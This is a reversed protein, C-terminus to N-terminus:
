RHRKRGSRFALIMIIWSALMITLWLIVNATDGTVPVSRNGSKESEGATNVGNITSNITNLGINANSNDATGISIIDNGGSSGSSSSSDSSSSGSSSNGSSGSGSGSNGTNDTLGGSDKANGSEITFAANASGDDFEAILTHTGAKLGLLYDPSLRIIVSGAAKTYNNEAVNNGDIKIGMFHSFTTQDDVSRKFVFDLTDKSGKYWKQNNGATVSYSTEKPDEKPDEKKEKKNVTRTETMGCEKCTRADEGNETYTPEKVRKWEGWDHGLAPIVAEGKKIDIKTKEPDKADLFDWGCGACHYYPKSGPKTCTAAKGEVTEPDHVHGKKAVERTEVHESNRKCERVVLGTQTETATRTTIWKGWDHGLAPITETKGSITKACGTCIEYIQREGPEDCTAEKSIESIEKITHQHNEHKNIVVVGDVKGDGNRVTKSITSTYGEIKDETVSYSDIPTDNDLTFAFLWDGDANKTVNNTSVVSGEKLLNVSVSEPRKANDIDEDAWIVIGELLRGSSILTNIVEFGQEAGSTNLGSIYTSYGKIDEKGEEDKQKLTYTIKTVKNKEEDYDYLQLDGLDYNWNDDANVTLIKVMVGNAYLELKVYHEPRTGENNDRDNWIISGSVHVTKEPKHTLYITTGKINYEYGEPPTLTVGKVKYEINTRWNNDSARLIVDGKEEPETGEKTFTVSLWTPRTGDANDGDNWVARISSSDSTEWVATFTVDDTVTFADDPYYCKDASKWYQFYNGNQDPDDYICEPITIPTNKLVTYKKPTTDDEGSKVTVTRYEIGDFFNTVWVQRAVKTNEGDMNVLGIFKGIRDTLLGGDGFLVPLVKDAIDLPTDKPENTGNTGAVMYYDFAAKKADKPLDDYGNNAYFDKLNKIKTNADDHFSGFVDKVGGEIGANNNLGYIIKGRCEKLQPYRTLGKTYDGDETYLYPEGTSPNIEQSLARIHKRLRNRAEDEDLDIGQSDIDIIVTETPNEKLFEKIWDFVKALTLPDDNHDKAYFTGMFKDKGHMIWLDKGNDSRSMNDAHYTNVRFDFKRIGDQLQEDVYRRQCKAYRDTIATYVDDSFYSILGGLPNSVTILGKLIWAAYSTSTNGHINATGSDHTGPLNVENLYREGSLGSMWDSGKLKQWNREMQSSKPIFPNPDEENKGAKKFAAEVDKLYVEHKDNSFFILSPEIGENNIIYGETFATDLGDETTVGIRAYVASDGKGAFLPGNVTLKKDETLYIDSGGLNDSIEANGSIYVNYVDKTHSDVFIGSGSLGSMNWTIRGGKVTLKADGNDIYIGGGYDACSNDQLSCNDLTVSCDRIRIAGGSVNASNEKLTCDKLEIDGDTFIAGGDKGARNLGIATGTIGIKGEKVYIGGGDGKVSNASISGGIITMDNTTYIGGGDAEGTNGIINCDTLTASNRNNIGVGGKKSSTNASIEVGTFEITGGDNYVGGGDESINGSIKGNEMVVRGAYIVMGGGNNEARNGSMETDKVTLTKNGAEVRMGGGDETESRNGNVRSNKIIADSGLHVILGGGDNKSTNGSIVANEIEFTGSDACYIGGGTDEAYNGVVSGGKMILRGKVFIGGGDGNSDSLFGDHVESRNGTVTGDEIICTSNKEIKIGGGEDDTNGGTIIGTGISDTITLTAGDKVNIVHGDGSSSSRKRDMKHGNLDITIEKVNDGDVKISYDEGSADIDSILAVTKGNNKSDNVFDQLAKWDGVWAEASIAKHRLEGDEIELATEYSKENYSFIKDADDASGSTTLGDTLKASSGGTSASSKASIDIKAGISSDDGKTLIGAIKLVNGAGLLINKGAAGENGKVFPTGSVSLEGRKGVFIGGAEVTATNGTIIGGAAVAKATDADEDELYIGGGRVAENDNISGGTVTLESGGHVYVAGGKDAKNGTVNGSEITCAAGTQLNIAGGKDAWGGTITGTKADSSDRITLSCGDGVIFVHGDKDKSSRNMNITHGNLDIVLRKGAPLSLMKDNGYGKWDRDIILVPEAGPETNAVTDNILKQLGPWETDVLQGEGNGDKRVTYGHDSFFVNAPDMEPDITKLNKTFTGCDDELSVYVIAGQIDGSINLKEEDHLYVNDNKNNSVKLDGKIKLEEDVFIGGGYLQASNDTINGGDILTDGDEVYIAGGNGQLDNNSKAENKIMNASLIIMDNDAQYIGGGQAAKNSDFTCNKIIADDKSFVAGGKSDARNGTFTCRTLTIQSKNYVAGGSDKSSRNKTFTCDTMQTTGKNNVGGGSESRSDNDSFRVNEATFKTNSTVMIGGADNGSNGNMEGGSMHITGSNLYIGGAYDDASNGRIVTNNITLTKGHADFCIGGGHALDLVGRNNKCQVARNDAITCNSIVSDQKIRLMLGGGGSGENKNLSINGSIIANDLYITGTDKEVYIGGGEDAAENNTVSGGTMKLTGWVYIGAGDKSAKNGKITGGEIICTSDKEIKIGGGDTAYGGTLVGTGASDRLTLEGDNKVNFVHGDGTSSSRNRDMKYGNLDVIVKRNDVKISDDNNCVINNSLTIIDGDKANNIATQLGEWSDISKSSEINKLYIRKGNDETRIELRDNRGEYTFIKLANDESVNDGLDGTIPAATTDTTVDVVAAVDLNGAVNIVNGGKLLINRGIISTNGLVSPAGKINLVGESESLGHWIGGAETSANNSTISGGNLNLSGGAIYVGGGIDARNASIGALNNIQGGAMYIGGGKGAANNSNIAGTEKIEVAGESYIGGGDPANNNEVKGSKITINGGNNVRIGGGGTNGNNGTISGNELIFRGGDKVLVGGGAGFGGCIKGGGDESTDIITLNGSVTITEGNEKYSNLGRDLKHGNLDITLTKGQPITLTKDDNQAIYDNDLNIVANESATDIDHQLRGWLSSIFRAEGNDDLVVSYGNEPVFYDVPDEGANHESFGETFVGSSAEFVMRFKSKSNGDSLPGTIKLKRGTILYIDSVKNDTMTNVGSIDVSGKSGVYIGGGGKIGTNNRINNGSLVTRGGNDVCIGGGHNQSTNGDITCNVITIFNETYIGAGSLESTNNSIGCSTVTANGKNNIGAGAYKITKNGTITVKNLRITSNDNYIGGGDVATNDKISGGEMALTGSDVNIGGGQDAATNGSIETNSVTLTKKDSNLKLGGGDTGSRNGKIICGTISGDTALHVNLGGGDDDSRNDTINANSLELKGTKEVYIGGGEDEAENGAIIGGNMSLTGWAYIGGGDKSAKNGSITVNGDIICTSDEEIKIGGGDTAYGGTLMGTGVSDKLTLTAGGKVNIVHGDGDSSTRKRDMKHGNLDLTITKGNVKISDNDTCVIDSSLTITDGDAAHNILKQLGDWSTVGESYEPSIESEIDIDIISGDTEPGSIIEESGEPDIIELGPEPTLEPEMTLEDEVHEVIIDELEDQQQTVIENEETLADEGQDISMDEPKEQETVIDDLEKAYVSVSAPTYTVTIVLAMFAAIMRKFYNREEMAYEKNNTM